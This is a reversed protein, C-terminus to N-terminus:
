SRGSLHLTTHPYCTGSLETQSMNVAEKSSERILFKLAPIPWMPGTQLAGRGRSAQHAPIPKLFSSIKGRRARVEHLESNNGHCIGVCGTGAPVGEADKQCCSVSYPNLGLPCLCRTDEMWLKFPALEAGLTTSQNHTRPKRPLNM